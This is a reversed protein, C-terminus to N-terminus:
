NILKKAAPMLELAKDFSNDNKISAAYFGKDGWICYAIMAKLFNKLYKKDQIFMQENWINRSKMFKMFNEFYADSIEFDNVFALYDKGYQQRVSNDRQNLFNVSYEIFLGKSKLVNTLLTTTDEKIFYDPYIGGGGIVHRGRETQYIPLTTKGGNMEFVKEIDSQSQGDLYLKLAPDILPKEGEKLYPKQICRGSPTYYRSVTLNFASGDKYEWTKQVLAKGFSTEGVIIGRDCDQIAGALAEAASASNQDILVVIPVKELESTGKSFIKMNYDKIRSKTQIILKGEPLLDDLIKGMQDLYGGNNGRLDLMLSTMGDNLLKEMAETMEKYSEKSFRNSKIYGTKTGPIIFATNISTLPIDNRYIMLENLGSSFGRKVILTVPTGKIGNIKKFLDAPPTTICNTGDVFLIKDGPLLGASDAPSGEIVTLVINTDNLNFINIGIGVGTGKNSENIRKYQEANFYLSHPDLEKLM